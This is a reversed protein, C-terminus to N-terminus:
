TLRFGGLWMIGPAGRRGGVAIALGGVDIREHIEDSMM